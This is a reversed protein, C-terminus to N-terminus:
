QSLDNDRVHRGHEMERVLLLRAKLLGQVLLTPGLDSSLNSLEPEFTSAQLTPAKRGFGNGRTLQPKQNYNCYLIDSFGIRIMSAM